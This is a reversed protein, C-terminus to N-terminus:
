GDTGNGCLVEYGNEMSMLEANTITIGNECSGSVPTDNKYLIKGLLLGTETYILTDGERNGNRYTIEMKLKGSISYVRGTGQRKDNKFPIEEFLEGNEYYWKEIGDVRGDRFPTEWLLKENESYTKRVGENKGYKYPAETRLNGNEDYLKQVGDKRGDIYPTEERLKGNEYYDCVVSNVPQGTARLIKIANSTDNDIDDYKYQCKIESEQANSINAFFLCLVTLIMLMKM